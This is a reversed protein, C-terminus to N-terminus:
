IKGFFARPGSAESFGKLDDHPSRSCRPADPPHPRSAIQPTRPNDPPARPVGPLTKHARPAIKSRGKACNSKLDIKQHIKPALLTGFPFCKPLSFPVLISGLVVGLRRWISSSKSCRCFCEELVDQLVRPDIKPWRSRAQPWRPAIQLRGPSGFDNIKRTNKLVKQFM